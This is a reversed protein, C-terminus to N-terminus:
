DSSLSRLKKGLNSSYQVAGASDIHQNSCFQSINKSNFLYEFSIYPIKKAESISDIYSLFAQNRQQNGGLYIPTTVIIIKINKVYCLRLIKLFYKKDIDTLPWLNNKFEFPQNGTPKQLLDTGMREDLIKKSISNSLTFNQNFECYKTIPIFKWLYYKWKPIYDSFISDYKEFLPLFEYDHFPYNCSEASNFCYGDSNLILTSIKNRSLFESLILYNEAYCSGSTGLNIGSKGYAKNLSPIDVNFYIRSSGLAAYDLNLNAQNLIWAQKDPTHFNIKIFYSLPYNILIMILIFM